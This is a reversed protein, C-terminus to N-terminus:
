PAAQLWRHEARPRGVRCRDGEGDAEEGPRDHPALTSAIVQLLSPSLSLQHSLGAHPKVRSSRRNSPELHLRTITEAGWM